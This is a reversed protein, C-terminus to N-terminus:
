PNPTPTLSISACYASFTRLPLPKCASWDSNVHAPDGLLVAAQGLANAKGEATERQGLAGALIQNKAKALEQASVPREQLRRLEARLAREAQEPKKGSALTAGLVFLGTHERLGAYGYAEQAIQQEYVLAQTLRSSEGGSLITEAVDLAFRDESTVPPALYTIVVAPLPVSAGYEVRRREAKRPPEQATVRPLPRM